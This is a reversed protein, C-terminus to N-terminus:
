LSQSMQASVKDQVGLPAVPDIMWAEALLEGFHVEAFPHAVRVLPEAPAPLESRPRGPGRRDPRKGGPAAFRARVTWVPAMRCSRAQRYRTRLKSYDSCRAPHGVGPFLEMPDGRVQHAHRASMTAVPAASPATLVTSTSVRPSTCSRPIKFAIPM